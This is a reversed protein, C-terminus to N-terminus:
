KQSDYQILGFVGLLFWTVRIGECVKCQVAMEQQRIGDWMVGVWTCIAQNSLFFSCCYFPKVFLFM